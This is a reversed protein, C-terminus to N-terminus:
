RAMLRGATGARTVASPIGEAGLCPRGAGPLPCLEMAPARLSTALALTCTAAGLMVARSVGRM